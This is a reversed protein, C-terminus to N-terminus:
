IEKYEDLPSCIRTSTFVVLVFDKDLYFFIFFITIM